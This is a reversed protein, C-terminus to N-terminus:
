RTRFLAKLDCGNASDVPAFDSIKYSYQTQTASYNPTKGLLSKNVFETRQEEDFKNIDNITDVSLAPQEYTQMSIVARMADKSKSPTYETKEKTWYSTVVTSDSDVTFNYLVSSIQVFNPREFVSTKIPFSYVTTGVGTLTEAKGPYFCDWINGSSDQQYGHTAVGESEFTGCNSSCSVDKAHDAKEDAFDCPLRHVTRSKHKWTGAFWSPIKVWTSKNIGVPSIMAPDFKNGSESRLREIKESEKTQVTAVDTSQHHSSFAASLIGILLAGVPVVCSIARVSKQMSGSLHVDTKFRFANPGRVSREIEAVALSLCFGAVMLFIMATPRDFALGLQAVALGSLAFYLFSCFRPFPM